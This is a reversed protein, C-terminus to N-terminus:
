DNLGCEVNARDRPYRVGDIDVHYERVDLHDFIGVNEAKNPAGIRAATQHVATLNKPSNNNQASRIDVQYELETDATKRDSSWSDFSLTFSDKVSDNFMIQVQADPNLIRVFLFLKGFNVRFNEVLITYIIDQLDATKFTLHFGLQKTIKKFTKCFGFFINM